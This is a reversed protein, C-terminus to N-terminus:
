DKNKFMRKDRKCIKIGDRIFKMTEKRVKKDDPIILEIHNKVFELFELSENCSEVDTLVDSSIASALFMNRLSEDNFIYRFNIIKRVLTTLKEDEELAKFIQEEM